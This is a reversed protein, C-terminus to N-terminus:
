CSGLSIEGSVVASTSKGPSCSYWLEYSRIVEYNESKKEVGEVESM